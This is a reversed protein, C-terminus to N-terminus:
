PGSATSGSPVRRAGHPRHGLASTQPAAINAPTNSGAIRASPRHDSRGRPPDALEHVAGTTCRESSALGPRLAAAGWRGLHEGASYECPPHTSGLPRRRGSREGQRRAPSRPRTRLSRHPPEASDAILPKLRPADRDGAPVPPAGGGRRRADRFMANGDGPPRRMSRRCRHANSRGPQGRNSGDARSAGARTSPRARRCPGAARIARRGAAPRLWRKSPAGAGARAWARVEMPRPIARGCAARGGCRIARGARASARAARGTM